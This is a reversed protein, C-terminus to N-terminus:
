IGQQETIKHFVQDSINKNAYKSYLTRETHPKTQFLNCDQSQPLTAVHKLKYHCTVPFIKWAINSTPKQGRNRKNQSFTIPM